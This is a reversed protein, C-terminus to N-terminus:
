FNQEHKYEMKRFKNLCDKCLWLSRSEFKRWYDSSKSIILVVSFDNSLAHLGRKEKDKEQCEVAKGCLFCEPSRHHFNEFGYWLNKYKLFWEIFERILRTPKGTYQVAKKFEIWKEKEIRFNKTIKM